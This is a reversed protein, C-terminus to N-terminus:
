YLWICCTRLFCFTCYPYLHFLYWLKGGMFYASVRVFFLNHVAPFIHNSNGRAMNEGLVSETFTSCNNIPRLPFFFVSPSFIDNIRPFIYWINEGLLFACISDCFFITDLPFFIIKLKGRAMNEELVGDTLTSCNNCPRHPFFYLCLPFFIM